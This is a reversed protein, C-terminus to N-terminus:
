DWLSNDFITGDYSYQDEFEGDMDRDNWISMSERVGDNNTDYFRRVQVLDVYGDGDYDRFLQQTGLSDALNAVVMQIYRIRGENSYDFENNEQDVVEFDGYIYELSYTDGRIVESQSIRVYDITGNQDADYWEMQFDVANPNGNRELVIAYDIYGDYNSDTMRWGGYNEGDQCMFDDNEGDNNQDQVTWELDPDWLNSLIDVVSFVDYDIETMKEKYNGDELRFTRIGDPLVYDRLSPITEEAQVSGMTSGITAAAMLIMSIIKKKM